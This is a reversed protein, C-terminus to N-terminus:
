TYKSYKSTIIYSNISAFQFTSAHIQTVLACQTADITAAGFYKEQIQELLPLFQLHIHSVQLVENFHHKHLETM